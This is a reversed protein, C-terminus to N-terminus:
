MDCCLFVFLYYLVQEVFKNELAFHYVNIHETAHNRLIKCKLSGDFAALFSSSRWVSAELDIAAFLERQQSVHHELEAVSCVKNCLLEKFIDTALRYQKSLQNYKVVKSHWLNCFQTINPKDNQIAYKEMSAPLVRLITVTSKDTEASSLLRESFGSLFADADFNIAASVVCWSLEYINCSKHRTNTIHKSFSQITIVSTSRGISALHNAIYDSLHKFFETTKFVSGWDVPPPSSVSYDSLLVGVVNSLQQKQTHETVLQQLRADNTVNCQSMYYYVDHGFIDVLNTSIITLLFLTLQAFGREAALHLATQGNVTTM